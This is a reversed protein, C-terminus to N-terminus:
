GQSEQLRSELDAARARLGSNEKAADRLLGELKAVEARLTEVDKVTRATEVGKAQLQLVQEVLETRAREAERLRSQEQQLAKEHEALRRAASESEAQFRAKVSSLDQVDKLASQLKPEFERLRAVKEREDGLQTELKRNEGRLRELERDIAQARQKVEEVQAQMSATGEEFKKHLLEEELESKLELERQLAEVQEVLENKDAELLQARSRAAKHEKMLRDLEKRSEEVIRTKEEATQTSVVRDVAKRMLDELGKEDLVKVNKFGKQELDKLAMKKTGQELANRLDLSKSDDTM